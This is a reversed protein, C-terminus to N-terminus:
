LPSVSERTLSASAKKRREKSRKAASCLRGVSPSLLGWLQERRTGSETNKARGVRWVRSLLLSSNGEFGRRMHRRVVDSVDHSTVGEPRPCLLLFLRNRTVKRRLLYRLFARKRDKGDVRRHKRIRMEPFDQKWVARWLTKSGIFSDHTGSDKLDECCEVYLDEEEIFDLERFQTNPM